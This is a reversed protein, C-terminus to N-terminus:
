EYTSEGIFKSEFLLTPPEKKILRHILDYEKILKMLERSKLEADKLDAAAKEIEILLPYKLQSCYMIKLDVNLPEYKGVYSEGHFSMFKRHGLSELEKIIQNSNKLEKKGGLINVIHSENFDNTIMERYERRINIGEGLDAEKYALSTVSNNNYENNSIRLVIDEKFLDLGYHTTEWIVKQTISKEVFPLAKFIEEKNKFKFRSEVEFISEIRIM